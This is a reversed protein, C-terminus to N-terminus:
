HTNYLYIKGEKSLQTVINKGNQLPMQWILERRYSNNTYLNFIFLNIVGADDNFFYGFYYFFTEINNIVVNIKTQKNRWWTTSIEISIDIYLSYITFVRKKEAEIREEEM